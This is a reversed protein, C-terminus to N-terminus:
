IRGQLVTKLHFLEMDKLIAMRIYTSIYASINDYIRICTHIPTYM